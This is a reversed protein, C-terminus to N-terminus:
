DREHDALAKELQPMFRQEFDSGVLPGVFKYLVTGDGAIIFTEPPATVGWDISNRGNPDFGIGLFPNGEDALYARAQSEKDKFNVGYLRIGQERLRLLNPHEARCPPCWSAWYNIVTVEGSTLDESDIGPYGALAAEPLPPALQGIFQSPLTDKDPRFMGVGALVVFAAFIIPPAIMLPSFRAM